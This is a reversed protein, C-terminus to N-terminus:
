TLHRFKRLSGLTIYKQIWTALQTLCIICVYVCLIYGCMYSIGITAFLMVDLQIHQQINYVM